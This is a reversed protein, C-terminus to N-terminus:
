SRRCNVARNGSFRQQECQSDRCRSRYTEASSSTACQQSSYAEDGPHRTTAENTRAQIATPEGDHELLTSSDFPWLIELAKVSSPHQSSGISRRAPFDVGVVSAQSEEQRRTTSEVCSNKCLSVSRLCNSLCAPRVGLPNAPERSVCNFEKRM